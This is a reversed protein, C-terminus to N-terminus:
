WRPTRGHAPRPGCPRRQQWSGPEKPTAARRAAVPRRGGSSGLVAPESLTGLKFRVRSVNDAVDCGELSRLRLGPDRVLSQGLVHSSLAQYSVWVGSSPRPTDVTISIEGPPPCRLERRRDRQNGCPRVAPGGPSLGNGCWPHGGNRQQNLGPAGSSPGRRFPSRDTAKRRM